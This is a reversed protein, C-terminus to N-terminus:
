ILFPNIFIKLPFIVKTFIQLDQKKRLILHIDLVNRILTEKRKERRKMMKKMMTKHITYRKCSM